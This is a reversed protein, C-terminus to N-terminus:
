IFPILSFLGSHPRARRGDVQSIVRGRCGSRPPFQLPSGVPRRVDRPQSELHTLVVSSVRNLAFGVRHGTTVLPRVM